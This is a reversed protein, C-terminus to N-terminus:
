WWADALLMVSQKYQPPYPAATPVPVGVKALRNGMGNFYENFFDAEVKMIGQPDGAVADFKAKWKPHKDMRIGHGYVNGSSAGG